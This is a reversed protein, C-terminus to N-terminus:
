RNPLVSFGSGALLQQDSTVLTLDYCRATAALFTDVPDRHPLRVERTQLAVETTLPAEKVPFRELAVRVWEEVSATISVKGKEAMHIFEWISLPSLWLENGSNDVARAVRRSLRAPEGQSWIWIHTDLLLRM